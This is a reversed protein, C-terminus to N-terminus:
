LTSAPCRVDRGHQSSWHDVLWAMASEFSPTTSEYVAATCLACAAAHVSTHRNRGFRVTGIRRGRLVAAFTVPRGTM